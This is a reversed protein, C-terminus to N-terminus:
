NYTGSLSGTSNFNNGSVQYEISVSMTYSSGSTGSMGNITCSAQGSGGPQVTIGNGSLMCSRDDFYIKRIVIEQGVRNQVNLIIGGSSSVSWPSEVQLAGFGRATPGIFSSPAFLGYYALVGGVVLVLMIFVPLLCVAIARGAGFGHVEEFCVVYLYLSYISIALGILIAVIIPIIAFLTALSGLLILPTIVIGIVSSVISLPATFTSIIYTQTKYDGKGGLMLAFIYHLGSIVLVQLVSAIPVGILYLAFMLLNMNLIGSIAGSILGAIAIFKMADGLNASNKESRFSERPNLLADKWINLMGRQRRPEIESQSYYYEEAM